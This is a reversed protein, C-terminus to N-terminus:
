LCFLETMATHNAYSRGVTCIRIPHTHEQPYPGFTATGDSITPATDLMSAIICATKLGLLCKSTSTNTTLEERQYYWHFLIKNWVNCQDTLRCKVAECIVAMKLAADAVKTCVARCNVAGM